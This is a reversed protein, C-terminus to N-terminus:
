CISSLTFNPRYDKSGSHHLAYNIKVVAFFRILLIEAALFILVFIICFKWLPTGENMQTVVGAFDRNIDDIVNINAANYREKLSAATEFSL